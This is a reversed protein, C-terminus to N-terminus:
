NKRRKNIYNICESDRINLRCKDKGRKVCTSCQEAKIIEVQEIYEKGLSERIISDYLEKRDNM